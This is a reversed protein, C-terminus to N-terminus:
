CVRCRTGSWFHPQGQLRFPLQVRLQAPFNQFRNNVGLDEVAGIAAYAPVSRTVLDVADVYDAIEQALVELKSMERFVKVGHISGNNANVIRVLLANTGKVPM